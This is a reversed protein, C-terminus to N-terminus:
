AAVINSRTVHDCNRGEIRILRTSDARFPAHVDGVEYVRADGPRLTYSRVKEAKAPVDPSPENLLRWDTMETEGVAQGYIAWTDGHDHPNGNKAGEYVHACICFGLEDDEYLISRERSNDPGLHRAVFDRDRLAQELRLRVKDRGQPGQDAALIERCDAAFRELTESM